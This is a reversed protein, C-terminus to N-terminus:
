EPQVGAIKVARRYKVLNQRLNESYADQTAWAPAFNMSKLKDLFEQSHVAVDLAAVLKAAIGAPVGVPALMGSQSSFDYGKIFDSIPPIGPALPFREGSTVALVNVQGAFPGLSSLSTFIATVEGSMLAPVSLAGGRYPIHTMSFGADSKLVEMVIHHISGVGTSGYDLKGPHAKAERILDPLTKINTFKPNTVLVMPTGAIMALPTFDKLTDYGVSKYVNPAIALQGTEALLLTYGDPTAKAAFATGLSGGAGAKNEIIFPQGMSQTLRQAVARALIDQSAGAPYGVIIRVPRTPYAQAVANGSGFMGITGIGALAALALRRKFLTM